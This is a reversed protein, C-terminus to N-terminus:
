SRTFTSLTANFFKKFKCVCSNKKICGSFFFNKCYLRYINCSLEFFILVRREFNFEKKLNVNGLWSEYVDNGFTKKLKKLVEDWNLQNEEKALLVSSTQNPLIEKM